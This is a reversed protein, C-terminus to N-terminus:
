KKIQKNIGYLENDFLLKWKHFFLRWVNPRTAKAHLYKLLVTTLMAHPGEANATLSAAQPRARYAAIEWIGIQIEVGERWEGRSAQNIWIPKSSSSLVLLM